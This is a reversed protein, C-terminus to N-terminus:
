QKGELYRLGENIRKCVDTLYDVDSQCPKKDNLLFDNIAILVVLIDKELAHLLQWASFGSRQQKEYNHRDTPPYMLVPDVGIANCIELGNANCSFCRMLVKGDPKITLSASPNTDRHLPCSFVYRGESLRRFKDLRSSLEAIIDVRNQSYTNTKLSPANM